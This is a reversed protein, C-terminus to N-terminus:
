GRPDSRLEPRPREVTPSEGDDPLVYSTLVALGAPVALILFSLGLVLLFEVLASRSTRSGEPDDSARSKMTQITKARSQNPGRGIGACEAAISRTM